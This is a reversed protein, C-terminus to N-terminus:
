TSLVFVGQRVKPDGFSFSAVFGVMYLDTLGFFLRTM